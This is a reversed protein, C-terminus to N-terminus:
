VSAAEAGIEEVLQDELVTRNHEKRGSLLWKLCTESPVFSEVVVRGKAEFQHPVNPAIYYYSGPVMNISLKAGDGNEYVVRAQGEIVCAMQPADHSHADTRFLFDPDTVVYVKRAFGSGMFNPDYLVTGHDTNKRAIRRVTISSKPLDSM